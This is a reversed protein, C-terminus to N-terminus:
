LVVPCKRSSPQRAGHLSLARDAAEHGIREADLDDPGRAVGVGLGTMLDRDEGAFAYAYAYAQTREYSAALGGSTALAVRHISEVNGDYARITRNIGDECWADAQDAGAAVAADVAQRAFRELDAGTAGNDSM